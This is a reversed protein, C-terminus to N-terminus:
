SRRRALGLGGLCVGLGALLLSSPEPVVSLPDEGGALRQIDSQTLADDWVALEDILGGYGTGGGEGAGIYLDFLDAFDVNNSGDHFKSGNVWIEKTDGNKVFVFHNWQGRVQTLDTVEKNIRTETTVCCGMTDWYINADQWPLHSLMGRQTNGVGSTTEVFFAITKNDTTGLDADGFTWLSISATNNAVINDFMDSTTVKVVAGDETDGFDLARDGANGSHGGADATYSPTNTGGSGTLVFESTLTGDRGGVVDTATAANDDFPYYARLQAAGCVLPIM